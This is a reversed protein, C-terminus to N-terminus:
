REGELAFVVATESIQQRFNTQGKFGRGGGVNM